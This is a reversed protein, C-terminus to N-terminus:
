YRNWELPWQGLKQLSIQRWCRGSYAIKDFRRASYESAISIGIKDAKEENERVRDKLESGM